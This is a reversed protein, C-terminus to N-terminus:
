NYVMVADRNAASVGKGIAPRSFTQNQFHETCEVSESLGIGMSKGLQTGM